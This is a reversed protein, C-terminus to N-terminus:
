EDEHEDHSHSPAPGAEATMGALEDRTVTSGKPASRGGSAVVPEITFTVASSLEEELNFEPPAKLAPVQAVGRENILCEMGNKLPFRIRIQKRIALKRLDALKM